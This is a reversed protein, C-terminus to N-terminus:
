RKSTKSKESEIKILEPKLKKSKLNKKLLLRRKESGKTRKKSIRRQKLMLRLVMLYEKFDPRRKSRPM